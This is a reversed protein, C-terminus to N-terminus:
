GLNRVIPELVPRRAPAMSGDATVRTPRRSRRDELASSVLVSGRSRGKAGGVATAASSSGGGTSTTAAAALAASPGQGNGAAAPADAFHSLPQAPSPPPPTTIPMYQGTRLEEPHWPSVVLPNLSEKTSCFQALVVCLMTPARSIHM